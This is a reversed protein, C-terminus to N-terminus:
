SMKLFAIEMPTVLLMLLLQAVIFVVVPTLDLGNPSPILKRLPKLIPNTLATLVPTIPTYPNIWSLVAQAIVAYLFIYISLRLMDVITLGILALWVINGAVLFPFGSLLRLVVQLSFQTVFALVLTSMDMGAFSPIIRRAPIVAFNTTMVIAQSFPNKFPAGTLQLYFRLLLTISFLGFLTQLIFGIANALM